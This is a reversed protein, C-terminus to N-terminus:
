ATRSLVPRERDVTQRRSRQPANGFCMLIEAFMTAQNSSSTLSHIRRFACRKMAQFLFRYRRKASVHIRAAIRYTKKLEAFVCEGNLRNRCIAFASRVKVSKGTHTVLAGSPRALM